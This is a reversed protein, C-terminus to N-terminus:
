PLGPDPLTLRFGGSADTAAEAVPRQRAAGDCDECFATVGGTSVSSGAQRLTGLLRLGAPLALDGLAGTAVGALETHLRAQRGALDVVVLEYAGGTAVSLAFAGDAGAVARVQPAGALELSRGPFARLEVGPLPALADDVVRGTVVAEGPAALEAPLGDGLSVPVVGATAGVPEIVADAPVAPLTAPPLVGDADAVVRVVFSGTATATTGGATVTAAAAVEGVFTVEAGPAIAGGARVIVGAADVTPRAPYVVALPQALDLVAPASRLKALGSSSPPTVSVTVVAGLQPRARVVFGGGADTAAYSSPVGGVVLQVSAGEVPGDPGVVTGAVAVGADVVLTGGTPTWNTLRRPALRADFPVILLDHRDLTSTFTFAGDVLAFADVSLDPTAVPTLRLYAPVGAAGDTVVGSVQAGGDLTVEGLDYDAGSPVVVVQEMPPAGGPPATFRLRWRTDTAGPERVNFTGDFGLCVTGEVDLRVYLPGAAAPVFRIRSGDTAVPEFPVPGGGGAVTWSYTLLGSADPVSAAAYVQEGATPRVPSLAVGVRCAGADSTPAGGDPWLWDGADAGACGAAAGCAGLIVARGWGRM